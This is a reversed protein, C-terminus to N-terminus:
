LRSDAVFVVAREDNWTTLGVAAPRAVSVASRATAFAVAVGLWDAVRTGPAVLRRCRCSLAM